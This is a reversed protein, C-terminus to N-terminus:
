ESKELVIPINISHEVELLNKRFQKYENVNVVTKKRVFEDTFKLVNNELSYNSVYDLIDSKISLGEPIGRVKYGEPLELTVSRIEASTTNYKLPYKRSEFSTFSFSYKIPLTFIYYEGSKKLVQM